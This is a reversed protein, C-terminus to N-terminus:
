PSAGILPRILAAADAPALDHSALRLAIRGDAGLVFTTLTHDFLYFGPQSSVPVNRRYVAGFATAAAATQGADGRLALMRPHFMTAYDRLLAPTDRDPDITIFVPRVRDAAPGLARLVRSMWALETPCVDPCTTFGFYVLAVQGRLDSETVRRGGADSLVFTPAPDAEAVPMPTHGDHHTRARMWVTLTAALVVAMALATAIIPARFRM